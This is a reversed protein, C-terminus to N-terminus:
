HIESRRCRRCSGLLGTGSGRNAGVLELGSIVLRKQVRHIHVLRQRAYLRDLRERPEVARVRLFVVAEHEVELVVAFRDRERKLVVVAGRQQRLFGIGVLQVVQLGRQVVRLDIRGFLHLLDDLQEEAAGVAVLKIRDEIGAHRNVYFASSSSPCISKLPLAM